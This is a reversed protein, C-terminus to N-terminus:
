MESSVKSSLAAGDKSRRAVEQSSVETEGALNTVTNVSSSLDLVGERTGQVVSFQLQTALNIQNAESSLTELRSRVGQTNQDIALLLERLNAQTQSLVYLLSSQDGSKLKFDGTLDGQAMQSAVKMAERPEGGVEGIISSRVIRGILVLAVITLLAVLGLRVAETRFQENVEDVYVGTGIVWGWPEFLKVYSIKPEEKKTDPKVGVYDVFGEGQQKVTKVFELYIAKGRPDKNGSQDKGELQPRIPHMLNRAQLDNLWFYEVKDYRAKRLSEKAQSQAQELPMAGAKAQEDYYALQTHAYEVLHRITDKQENIISQRLAMLAFAYIVALGVAGSVALLFMRASLKMKAILM